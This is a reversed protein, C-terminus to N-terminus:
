QSSVHVGLLQARQTAPAQAVQGLTMKEPPNLTVTLQHPNDLFHTLQDAADPQEPLLGGLALLPLCCVLLWLRSAPSVLIAPVFM